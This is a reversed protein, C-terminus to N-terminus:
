RPKWIANRNGQSTGATINVRGRFDGSESNWSLTGSCWHNEANFSFVVGQLQGSWKPSGNYASTGKTQGSEPNFEALTLRLNAVGGEVSPKGDADAFEIIIQQINVMVGRLAIDLMASESSSLGADIAMQRQGADGARIAERMTILRVTPDPDSLLARFEAMQAAQRRINAADFTGAATRPADAPKSATQALLQSTWLVMLVATVALSRHHM